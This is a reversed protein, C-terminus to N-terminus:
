FKSLRRIHRPSNSFPTELFKRVATRAETETLFDAGLALVNANNHERTSALMDLQKGSLDTQEKAATGYYLACRVGKFRNAVMAEGQGSAGGIIARSDKGTAVDAALKKAASALTDDPAICLFNKKMIESIRM